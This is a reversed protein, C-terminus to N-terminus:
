DNFAVVFAGTFGTEIMKAKYKICERENTFSGSTFKYLGKDSFVQIDKIGKFAPDELSKNQTLACLQVRFIISEDPKNVAQDVKNENIEPILVMPRVITKSSTEAPKTEINQKQNKNEKQQICNNFFNPEFVYAPVEEEGKFRGLDYEPVVEANSENTVKFETRRNAQHEEPTCTVDDACKNTLLREGYGKASIRNRDINNSIIYEVASEARKQSLKDNYDFSGRCDTHSGLEVTIVNEKMIRVLKDLEPRADKRITYNDFDYYINEISFTKNIVLKELLLDRPNILSTAPSITTLLFPTCDAIYNYMMGKIIYENDAKVSTKYMGDADTKLIRVSGIVPNLIFVTAGAIPQLTNKDKVLGSILMPLVEPKTAELIRFAYIDDSGVGGPRNSSFFGNKAAPAYSFAFDDFPGNVPPHLNVPTSWHGKILQSKFIDLSGYGPHGDSAFYLVGDKGIGPFMENGKTNVTSDLKLVAGWKDGERECKWIDTGGQGGPMDSAFFLTLGDPSLCPHGVSFKTSNLYFPKIEGWTDNTKDAYYIKLLDTKFIGERKTKGYFTRTFYISEENFSFAAPGDHFEQDFKSNFESPGSMNGWFNGDLEPNSKMINLYGHGTWGYTKKDSPSASDSAFILAGSYFAAGFESQSTNIKGAIKTEFQPSINKWPGLVSDCQIVSIRGRSDSPNKESYLQFMDRAKAYEGTSQLMKGYYYFSEPKADPLAVAKAYTAKSNFIDRQLRYCEALMPIAEDKTKKNEVAKKLIEIAGSYNYKDMQIQAKNISQANTLVPFIFCITLIIIYKAM